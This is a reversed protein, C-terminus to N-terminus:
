AYYRRLYRKWTSLYKTTYEAKNYERLDSHKRYFRSTFSGLLDLTREKEKKIKEDIAMM